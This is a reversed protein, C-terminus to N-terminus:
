DASKLRLIGGEPAKAMGKENAKAPLAPKRIPELPINVPPSLYKVGFLFDVLYYFTGSHLAM